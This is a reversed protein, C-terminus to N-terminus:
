GNQWVWKKALVLSENYAHGLILQKVYIALLLCLYGFTM